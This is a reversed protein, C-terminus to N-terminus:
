QIVCCCKNEEEHGVHARPAFAVSVKVGNNTAGGPAGSNGAPGAARREEPSLLADRLQDKDRTSADRRHSGSSTTSSSSSSSSSSPVADIMFCVLSSCGCRGRGGNPPQPTVRKLDLKENVLM